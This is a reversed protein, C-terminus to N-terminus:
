TNADEFSQECKERSYDDLTVEVLAEQLSEILWEVECPSLTKYFGNIGLSVRSSLATVRYLDGSVTTLTENM